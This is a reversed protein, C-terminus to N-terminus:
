VNARKGAKKGKKEFYTKQFERFKKKTKLPDKMKNLLEKFKKETQDEKLNEREHEILDKVSIKKGEKIKEDFDKQTTKYKWYTKTPTRNKTIKEEDELIELHRKTTQRTHGVKKTIEATYLPQRSEKLINLIKEKEEM